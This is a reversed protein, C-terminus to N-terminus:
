EPLRRHGCLLRAHASLERRRELGFGEGSFREIGKGIRTVAEDDLEIHFVKRLERSVASSM